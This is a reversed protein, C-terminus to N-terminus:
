GAARQLGHESRFPVRAYITTGGKPRSQITLTGNVLRLREQMSTLGLGRGQRAAEVDFGKGSDHIILHFEDSQESIQVETRTAGSHKVANHLAEQLVRLFCLGIERPVVGSVDSRFDIEMHQRESFEKCWSKLARVSGLYELNASHLEHSLAQVDGAIDTITEQLVQVRRETELPKHQLQGVEGVLVALRQCIDDHLERGIRAREQEQAEIVKRNATVLAEEAQKRQSVDMNVGIMRVAEGSEDMFVQWRGAVWRVSGDSWMVRWEGETPDGSEFASDVLRVVNARDDPHIVKEFASSTRKFGGLPLGYMAELEGTWTNVGTKLNWEFTGIRAVKQALQLREESAQLREEAIKRDTIDVQV